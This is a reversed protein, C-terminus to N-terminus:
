RRRATAIRCEHHKPSARSSPVPARVGSSSPWHPHDHPLRPQAGRSPAQALERRLPADGLRPIRVLHHFLFRLCSLRRSRSRLWSDLDDQRQVPRGVGVVGAEEEGLGLAEVSLGPDVDLEAAWVVHGGGPAQRRRPLHRRARGRQAHGRGFRGDRKGGGVRVLGAQEGHSGHKLAGGRGNASQGVGPDLPGAVQRPPPVSRVVAPELVGDHPGHHPVVAAVSVGDVAVRERHM